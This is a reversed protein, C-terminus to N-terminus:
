PKVEAADVGAPVLDRRIARGLYLGVHGGMELQLTPTEITSHHLPQYAGKQRLTAPDFGLLLKLDPMRTGRWTVGFVVKTTPNVYEKVTLDSSSLIRVSYGHASQTESKELHLGAGVKAIQEQPKGLTAGAFSQLFLVITLPLAVSIACNFRNCLVRRPRPRLIPSPLREVGLSIQKPGTAFM